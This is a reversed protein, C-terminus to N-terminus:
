PRAPKLLHKRYLEPYPHGQQGAHLLIQACAHADSTADHHRLPIQLHRAVDSLKAPHLNWIARALKVTCLFPHRVAAQGAMACCARLVSRDFAANHAAIFDVKELRRAVEPWLEGFTPKDRVHQWAIGHLYTFVFSQRPPRILSTWTEVIQQDQVIVVSLACASDRGYDATEFDLAAFCGNLTPEIARPRAARVKKAPAVPVASTKKRPTATM